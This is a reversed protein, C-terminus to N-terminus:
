WWAQLCRIKILIVSVILVFLSSQTTPPCGRAVHSLNSSIFDNMLAKYGFAM